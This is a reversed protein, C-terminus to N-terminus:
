QWSGAPLTTSNKQLVRVLTRYRHAAPVLRTPGSHRPSMQATAPGAGCSNWDQDAIMLVAEAPFLSIVPSPDKHSCKQVCRRM